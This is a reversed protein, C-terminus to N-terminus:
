QLIGHGPLLKRRLQAAGVWGRRSALARRPHRPTRPDAPGHGDRVPSLRRLPVVVGTGRGRIAGGDDARLLAVPSRGVGEVLGPPPLSERPPLGPRSLVARRGPSAGGRLTPAARRAARDAARPSGPARDPGPGRQVEDGDGSRSRSRGAPLRPDAGAPARERRRA